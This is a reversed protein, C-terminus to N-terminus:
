SKLKRHHAIAAIAAAVKKKKDLSTSLATEKPAEKDPFYNIVVYGLVKLVAVMFILFLFVIGMGLVMFKLAEVVINAEM